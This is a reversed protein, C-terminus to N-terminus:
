HISSHHHTCSGCTQCHRRRQLLQGLSSVTTVHHEPSLVISQMLSSQVSLQPRRSPPSPVTEHAQLDQLQPRRSNQLSHTVAEPSPVPAPVQVPLPEAEEPLQSLLTPAKQRPHLLNQMLLPCQPSLWLCRSVQLFDQQVPTPETLMTLELDAPKVTVNSISSHQTPQEVLTVASETEVPSLALTEQQTPFSEAENPSESVSCCRGGPSSFIWSSWFLRVASDPDGQQTLPNM